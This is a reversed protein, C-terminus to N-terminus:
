DLLHSYERRKRVIEDDVAVSWTLLTERPNQRNIVVNWFANDIARPAFYGGPVEPIERVQSWQALLTDLDKRKWALRRFAEVNATAHRGAIGLISEIESAYRSQTPSSTWWRIYRFAAEPNPSIALIVSATGGAAESRNITGDPQGMGPVASIAWRNNIEPAAISLRAYETYNAIAMPMEGTRFRNYFDFTVPLKYQTYLDTWFRFAAISEPTSLTTAARDERYLTTGSQLLLTPYLNLAGIGADTQWIETIQTYPIGAQLNYRQLIAAIDLFAKWTDPPELGLEAFIDTRYFLVHFQQSDPLGFCRDGLSYPVTAGPMFEGVAEEFGEFGNLERLAGRMALNVPQTRSLMLSLDPGNGSLIAQILSSNVIRINVPIGTEGTFYNRSLNDLVQAQDRGWNIWISLAEQGEVASINNYNGLFSALFRQVSFAVRGFFGPTRSGFPRGPAALIIEDLDMPMNRMEYMWANASTYSNYFDTKYDQARYDFALMRRIVEALRRLVVAESGGGAGAIAEIEDALVLLRDMSDTLRAELDPIQDFLDYDRNPDPLEGTIMVISRYIEGLGYLVDQMDRSFRALPGLTVELSLEHRGAELYVLGEVTDNGLPTVRWDHRYPFAVTGAEAFPMEGDVLLRRYADINRLYYQRSRFGIRYLASVPAEIEWTLRENPKQWNHSGIYNIKQRFPNSPHVDPNQNDSKPIIARTSKWTASEAQLVIEPGDYHPMGGTEGAMVDAYSAVPTEPVFAIAELAFPESRAELTLRHSGAALHIGYPEAALGTQDRFFEASWAPSEVQGPAFENGLGDSRVPGDDQWRRPFYTSEMGAFLFEGDLRVALEIPNERGPLPLYTLQLWYLGGSPISVDWSVLGEESTWLLVKGPAGEYGEAVETGAGEEGSFDAAPIRIIERGPELDGLSERYAAYDPLGTGTPAGAARPQGAPPVEGGAVAASPLVLVSLLFAFLIALTM